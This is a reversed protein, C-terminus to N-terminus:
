AAGGTLRAMLTDDRYEGFAGDFHENAVDHVARALAPHTDMANTLAMTLCWRLPQLIPDGWHDGRCSASNELGLASILHIAKDGYKEVGESRRDAQNTGITDFIAERSVNKTDMEACLRMVFRGRAIEDFQRNLLWEDCEAIMARAWAGGPSDEAAMEKLDVRRQRMREAGKQLLVEGLRLNALMKLLEGATERGTLEIDKM